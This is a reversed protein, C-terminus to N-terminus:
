VRSTKDRTWAAHNRTPDENNIHRNTNRPDRPRIGQKRMLAHLSLRTKEIKAKLEEHLGQTQQDISVLVDAPNKITEELESWTSNIAAEMNEQCARVTAKMEEQSSKVTAKMMDQNAEMKAQVEEYRAKMEAQCAKIEVRM